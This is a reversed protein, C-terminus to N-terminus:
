GHQVVPLRIEFTTAAGANRNRNLELWGGHARVIKRAVFLGLGAGPTVHETEAGRFFREFIRDQEEPRISSGENSVRVEAFGDDLDLEVAVDSDPNSYKCANDLLQNMALSLLEPDAMIEVDHSPTKMSIRRGSHRQCQDILHRLMACISAPELQPKVDHRDLRATRLLRTTLQSLHVTKNEIIDIMEEQEFGPGSTERLAGSAALIIALPTKFEHAFADVIASRLMEAQADAAANSATRFARAREIATAVLVTLAPVVSENEFSGEFGIAGTIVTGTRLLRIHLEREANQYNDRLMCAKQTESALANLSEGEFLLKKSISDFLCAARLNFTESFIRLCAQGAAIEPDLSLLRSAADYLLAFDRRRSEASRAETHAKSALRTIVLSTALYTVLAVTDKPDNIQWELVPPIFFFDLCAVAAVSVIAASAFGGRFSQAVVVLLFLPMIVAFDLHAKFGIFTILAIVSFALATKLAFWIWQSCITVVLQLNPFFANFLCSFYTFLLGQETAHSDSISFTL